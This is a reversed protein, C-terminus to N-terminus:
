CGTKACRILIIRSLIQAVLAARIILEIIICLLKGISSHWHVLVIIQHVEVFVCLSFRVSTDSTFNQVHEILVFVLIVFLMCSIFQNVNTLLILNLFELENTIIKCVWKCFFRSIESFVDVQDKLVEELILLDDIPWLQKLTDIHHACVQWIQDNIVRICFEVCMLDKLFSNPKFDNAFLFCIFISVM